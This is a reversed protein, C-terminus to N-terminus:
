WFIWKIWRGWEANEEMNETKDMEMMRHVNKLDKMERRRVEEMEEMVNDTVNGNQQVEQKLQTTNQKGTLNQQANMSRCTEGVVRLCTTSIDRSLKQMHNRLSSIEMKLEENAQLLIKHMVHLDEMMIFNKEWRLGEGSDCPCPSSGPEQHDGETIDNYFFDSYDKYNSALGKRSLQSFLWLLFLAKCVCM